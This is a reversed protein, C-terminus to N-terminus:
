FQAAFGTQENSIALNTISHCICYYKGAELYTNGGRAYEFRQATTTITQQPGQIKLKVATINNNGDVTCEYVRIYNYGGVGTHRITGTWTFFYSGTYNAYFCMMGSRFAPNFYNASTLAYTVTAPRTGYQLMGWTTAYTTQESVCYQLADPTVLTSGSFVSGVLTSGSYVCKIPTTGNFIAM